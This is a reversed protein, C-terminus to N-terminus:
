KSLHFVLWAIGFAILAIGGFLFGLRYANVAFKVGFINENHRQAVVALRRTFVIFVLGVCLLLLAGPM